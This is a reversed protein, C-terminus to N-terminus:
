SEDEDDESPKAPKKTGDTPLKGVDTMNTQVTYKDGGPIPGMDELDRVEDRNLYGNQLGSAYFSQRTQMDGRLLGALNFKIQIGKAVDERSLLTKELRKEIRVLTPMLSYTVFHLNINEISSAWSSAKNQQGILQPPVNFLRCIEEIGFFRSELLQADIPNIRFEAGALPKLGYPLKMMKGGNEPRSYENLRAYFQQLEETQWGKKSANTDEFFGGVKLGQKFAQQASRNAAIQAGLIQIGVSLRSIGWEGTMSFGPIHLVESDQYDDGNIKWRRRTHAKNTYEYSCVQPDRPNLAIPRGALTDITSVCNGFMDLHATNLSFYEPSTQHGNPSVRLLYHAPHDTLVKKSKDRVNIPLTGLTEARLNMCAWVASLKLASEAGVSAYLEDSTSNFAGPAIPSNPGYTKWGGILSGYVSQWISKRETSM